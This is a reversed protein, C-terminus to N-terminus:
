DCRRPSERETSRSSSTGSWSGPSRGASGRDMRKRMASTSAAEGPFKKGVAVIANQAILSWDAVACRESRAQADQTRRSNLAGLAAPTVPGAASTTAAFAAAVGLGVVLLTTLRGFARIV